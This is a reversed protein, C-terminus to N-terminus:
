GNNANVGEGIETLATGLYATAVRPNRVVTEPDGAALVEGFDLAIMDDCCKRLFSVDHEIIVMTMGASRLNGVIEGIVARDRRGMGSTPEDLLLLKPRMAVARAIAVAKQEGHSLDSALRKRLGSIGLLEFAGDTAEVTWRRSERHGLPPVQVKRVQEAALLVNEFATMRGFIEVAQFTRAVGLRAIRASEMGVLEKGDLKISGTDPRCLGNVCNLLTTKGAGNPGIIGLSRARRAACTVDHLAMLGGFSISLSNIELLSDALTSASM